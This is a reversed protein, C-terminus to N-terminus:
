RLYPSAVLLYLLWAAAHLFFGGMALALLRGKGGQTVASYLCVLGIIGALTGVVTFLAGTLGLRAYGALTVATATTVFFITSLRFRLLSPRPRSRCHFVQDFEFVDDFQEPSDGESANILGVDVLAFVIRGFDQTSQIGWERLIDGAQPGYLDLAQDHLLWCFEAASLHKSKKAPDSMLPIASLVFYWASESYDHEDIAAQLRRRLPHEPDDVLASEEGLGGVYSLVRWVCSGVRLWNKARVSNHHMEALRRRGPAPQTKLNGCNTTQVNSLLGTPRM